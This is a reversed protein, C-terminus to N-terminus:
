RRTLELRAGTCHFARHHIDPVTSGFVFLRAPVLAATAAFGFITAAIPIVIGAPHHGCSWRFLFIHKPHVGQPLLEGSLALFWRVVLGNGCGGDILVHYFLLLLGDPQEGGLQFLLFM